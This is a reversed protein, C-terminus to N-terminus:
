ASVALCCVFVANLTHIFLRSVTFITQRSVAVIFARWLSLKEPRWLPLEIRPQLIGIVIILRYIILTAYSAYVDFIICSVKGSSYYRTDPPAPILATLVFISEFPWRCLALFIIFRCLTTHKSAWIWCFILFAANCAYVLVRWANFYILIVEMNFIVFVNITRPIFFSTACILTRCAVLFCVILKGVSRLIRFEFV